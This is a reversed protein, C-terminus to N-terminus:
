SIWLTKALAINLNIDENSKELELRTEKDQQLEIYDDLLEEVVNPKNNVINKYKESIKLMITM